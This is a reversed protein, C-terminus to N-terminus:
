GPNSCGQQYIGDAFRLGAQNGSYALKLAVNIRLVLSRVPFHYLAPLPWM